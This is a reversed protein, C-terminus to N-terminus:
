AGTALSFVQESTMAGTWVRLESLSGPLFHGRVGSASGRGAAIEGSGQTPATFSSGVAEPQQMEGVYLRTNGHGATTEETGDYVGTIQVWTDVEAVDASAVSGSAVVAGVADTATRGFRWLYADPGAKEVWLAWSSEKGDPTAQSFVHAKAGVPLAALKAGDLRVGATVTFSGTEDVVPGTTALHGSVGDLRLTGEDPEATVGTASATMAGAAYSTLQPVRGNAAAAADWHAVLESAPVGDTELRGEKRVEGPLLARQWVALEDVRGMFYEGSKSGGVTMGASSTWPMYASNVAALTVPSGQPRGNVFLQITDNANDTDRKTDFVGVLHTWVNLPPHPTDALASVYAPTASDAVARNFVWKKASASYFLNFAASSDTGPASAVVRTTSADTLMVWASVTFSDRTNLPASSTSAHGTRQAPDTVDDNLRLSYDGSGRRGQDTWTAAKGSQQHLTIDHRAGETTATDKAVTTTAGQAADDFHWRGVASEAPAVKFHFEAPTGARDRVDIAEVILVQTGATTPEPHITVTSGTM